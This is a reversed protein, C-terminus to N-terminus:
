REVMRGEESRPLRVQLLRFNCGSLGIAILPKRLCAGVCFPREEINLVTLLHGSRISFLRVINVRSCCVLSEGDSVIKCDVIDFHGPLLTHVTTGSAVDLVHVGCGSELPNWTVVVDGKSPFVCRAFQGPRVEPHLLGMHRQWMLSSTNSLGGIGLCELCGSAENVVALDRSNNNCALVRRQQLCVSITSMIDGRSTALITVDAYRGVCAVQEESLPIVKRIETMNSWRRVCVTLECNWLEPCNGRTLLLVGDTVPTLSIIWAQKQARLELRSVDWVSLKTQTQWEKTVVYVREGNLSFSVERVLAKPNKGKGKLEAVSLVTLYNLDPSGMLVSEEGLKCIRGVFCFPIVSAFKDRSVDIPDGLLFVEDNGFQHTHRKCCEVYDDNALIKLRLTQKFGLVLNLCFIEQNDASFNMFGISTGPYFVRCDRALGNALEILYIEPYHCVGVSVAIHRGDDSWAFCHIEKRKTIRTVETGNELNWIIVCKRERPSDTLMKTNDKCFACVTFVCNSAPFLVELDGEITFVIALNGPLIFHRLPHFVVAHWFSLSINGFEAVIRYASGPPTMRNDYKRTVLVQKVWELQGTKLSWLQVTGDRCECVMHDLDPSVDFSCVPSSCYFQAQIVRQPSVNDVYKIFPVDLFRTQLANVAEAYLEGGGENLATQLIVWPLDRLTSSYKRLLFVLTSLSRRSGESLLDSIAREQFCFMEKLTAVSNVCLKSFVCPRLKGRLEQGM